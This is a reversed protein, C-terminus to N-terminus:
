VRATGQGEARGGVCGGAYSGQLEPDLVLCGSQAPAVAPLGALLAFLTLARMCPWAHSM